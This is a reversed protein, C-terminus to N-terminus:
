IEFVRIENISVVEHIFNVKVMHSVKLHISSRAYYCISEFHDRSCSNGRFFFLFYRYPASMSFKLNVFLFYTFLLVNPLAVSLDKRGRTEM